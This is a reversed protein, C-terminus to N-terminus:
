SVGSEALRRSKDAAVTGARSRDRDARAADRGAMRFTIKLGKGLEVRVEGLLNRCADFVTGGIRRRQQHGTDGFTDGAHTEDLAYEFRRLRLAAHIRSM